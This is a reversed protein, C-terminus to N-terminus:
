RCSGGTGCWGAQAYFCNGGQEYAFSYLTDTITSCFGYSPCWASSDCAQSRAASCAATDSSGFAAGTELYTYIGCGSGQCQYEQELVAYYADCHTMRKGDVRSVIARTARGSADRVIEVRLPSETIKSPPAAVVSSSLVLALLLPTM